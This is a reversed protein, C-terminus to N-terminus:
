YLLNQSDPGRIQCNMIEMWTGIIMLIKELFVYLSRYTTRTVDIYRLPILFSEERPTCLKVRPEVHHRCIFDRRISWFDKEDEVDDLTSEDQHPTPSSLGDSEGQLIEQQEGRDPHDRISTSTRLRQDGGSIKVTGDAVPFIFNGSRQPTLVEKANFRRAHLESAHMQELEQIDATLIDGKWIGGRTYRLDLSYVQCSKQVLNIYDRYTKRLFLTINSWQEM